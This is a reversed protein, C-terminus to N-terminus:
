SCLGASTVGHLAMPLDASPGHAVPDGRRSGCPGPALPRVDARRLRRQLAVHAGVVCDMIRLRALDRRRELGPRWLRDQFAAEAVTTVGARALELVDFFVPLTRSALEDGPEPV